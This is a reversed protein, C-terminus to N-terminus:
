RLTAADALIDGVANDLDLRYLDVAGRDNGPCSAAIALAAHADEAEVVLFGWLPDAAGVTTVGQGRDLRTGAQLRSGGRVVGSSAQRAVWGLLPQPGPGTV